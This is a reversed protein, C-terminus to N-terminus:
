KVAASYVLVQSWFSGGGGDQSMSKGAKLSFEVVENGMPLPVVKFHLTWWNEGVSAQGTSIKVRGVRM